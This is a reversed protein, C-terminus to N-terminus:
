PVIFAGARLVVSANDPWSPNVQADGEHNNQERLPERLKLFHTLKRTLDAILVTYSQHPSLCVKVRLKNMVSSSPPNIQNKKKENM